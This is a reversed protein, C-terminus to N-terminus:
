KIKTECRELFEIVNFAIERQTEAPSYKLYELAESLHKDEDYWRKLVYNFASFIDDPIKTGFDQAREIILDACESRTDAKSNRLLSVALSVTPELDYWRQHEATM